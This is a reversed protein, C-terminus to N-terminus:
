ADPGCPRGRRGKGRGHRRLLRALTNMGPLGRYGRQLAIDM